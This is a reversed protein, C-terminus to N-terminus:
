QTKRQTDIWQRLDNKEVMMRKGLTIAPFGITHALAYAKARSISLLKAVEDISLYLPLQEWSTYNDQM